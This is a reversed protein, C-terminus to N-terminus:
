AVGARALTAQARLDAARAQDPLGAKAYVRALARNLPVGDHDFTRRMELMQQAASVRGARILADLQIQEFLDRQAHSGGTEAMRPLARGMLRICTDFDGAAHALIARAAPLAVEAWATQGHSPVAARDAIAQMLSAAEPRATRALAYLYQLTLFPQV